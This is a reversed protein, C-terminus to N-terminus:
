VRFMSFLLAKKSKISMAALSPASSLSMSMRFSTSVKMNSTAWGEIIPYLSFYNCDKLTILTVVRRGGGQNPEEVAHSRIRLVLFQDVLLQAADEPARIPRARHLVSSLEFIQLTADLFGKSQVGANRSDLPVKVFIELQAAVPDRSSRGDRQEYKAKVPVLFVERVWQYVFRFPEKVVLCGSPM